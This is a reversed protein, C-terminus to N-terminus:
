AAQFQINHYKRLWGQQNLLEDYTGQEVLRGEELVVVWDANEITSLRHAIALVTRGAMLREMSEQVLKESLTDLNSTAEDLILIKPDRLLARAIAIRQRQGGSLRVGRDGLITDYSDDMEMVFDHANAMQAAKRVEDPSADLRGYRINAEVTDNFVYTHQSVVAIHDRLTRVDFDRLDTGDVTIGGATPDYLRPLLDALTTKGAGSGGVLATMKGAEICVSIDKLVPEGPDYAFWVNHFEIAEQLGTFRRTGNPLYPKDSEDLLEAVRSLGARNEAWVSRQENLNHVNPVMRLMAFLFTLLFAVDLHGPIVYFQLAFVVLVILVTSVIAQSIPYVLAKRKRTEITSDAVDHIAADLREQEYPQRNYTVVTRIGEIFETIRSTFTSNAASIREGGTRVRRMLFTLGAALLSFVVLAFLSLEWSIWVMLVLYMGVLTVQTVVNFVVSVAASTRGMENTISNLLDGGRRASFFGLSVAQLQQVIRQRLYEVMRARTITAYVERLYGLASRALTALLIVGCIRYMRVIKSEGTALIYHDIWEVGTRFTETGDSTFTQLFPILMGISFAETFASALSLGSTLLFLSWYRALVSRVVQREPKM